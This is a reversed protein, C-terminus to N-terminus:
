VGRRHPPTRLGSPLLPALRCIIAYLVGPICVPRGREVARLADKAVRDPTLWLLRPVRQVKERAGNVDFFETRTYGPCLATVHIGRQKLDAHMTKSWQLIFAKTPGYLSKPTVSLYSAVSAVNIIRGHGRDLMAPLLGHALDLWSRLLVQLFEHLEEIPMDYMSGQLGYGANNVLMDVNLGLDSISELLRQPTAPDSLDGPLVHVEVGHLESLEDALSQLRDERRAVLVLGYGDGALRRAFAEGIGSSAGTILATSSM